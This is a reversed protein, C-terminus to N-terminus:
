ALVIQGTAMALALGLLVAIAMAATAVGEPHPIKAYHRLACRWFWWIICAQIALTITMMPLDEFSIFVGAQRAINEIMEMHVVVRILILPPILGAAYISLRAIHGQHLKARKRTQPLLVLTAPIVAFTVLWVVCSPVVNQMSPAQIWWPGYGPALCFLGELQRMASRFPTGWSWRIYKLSEWLGVASVFGVALVVTWAHM